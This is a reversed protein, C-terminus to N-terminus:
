TRPDFYLIVYYYTKGQVDGSRISAFVRSDSPQSYPAMQAKGSAQLLKSVGSFFDAESGQEGMSLEPLGPTEIKGFQAYIDKYLQLFAKVAAESNTGEYAYVGIRRLHGEKFFFQFNREQGAFVGRYTELDGNRFSAYPGCEAVMRVQEQSMGFKWPLSGCVPESAAVLGPAALVLPLVYHGVFRM